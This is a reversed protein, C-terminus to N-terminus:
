RIGRQTHDSRHAFVATHMHTKNKHDSRHAFVANYMHTKNKHKRLRANAAYMALDMINQYIVHQCQVNQYVVSFLLFISNNQKDSRCSETM